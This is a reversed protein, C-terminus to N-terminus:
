RPSSLDDRAVDRLVRRFAQQQPSRRDERRREKYGTMESLSFYPAQSIGNRIQTERAWRMYLQATRHTLDFNKTLWTGWQGHSVQEKAETLM